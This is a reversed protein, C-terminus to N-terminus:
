GGSCICAIKWCNTRGPIWATTRCSLSPCPASHHLNFRQTLPYRPRVDAAASKREPLPVDDGTIAGVSPM